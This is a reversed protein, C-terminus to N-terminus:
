GAASRDRGCARLVACALIRAAQVLERVEVHENAAHAQHIKGPGFYVTPIRAKTWYHYADSDEDTSPVPGVIRPPKGLVEEVCHGLVHVVESDIPQEFPRGVVDWAVDVRLAPEESRKRELLRWLREQVTEISLGCRPPIRIDISANCRGPIVNPKEGGAVTNVSMILSEAAEGESWLLTSREALICSLLSIMKEVANTATPANLTHATTGHTTLSVWLVGEEALVLEFESPELLIGMDATILGREVLYAAGEAGGTEEGVTFACLLSGALPVRLGVLLEMVHLICALGGKMDCAGRGFVKGERVVPEYPNSAWGTGAPVVDTHGALLLTPGDGDGRLRVLVNPRGSVKEVLDPELGLRTFFRAIYQAVGAENGPPNESPLAVLERTLTVLRDESIAQALM